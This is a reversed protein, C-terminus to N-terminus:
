CKLATNEPASFPTRYETMKDWVQNLLSGELCVRLPSTVLLASM